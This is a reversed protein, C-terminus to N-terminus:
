PFAAHHNALQSGTQVDRAVGITMSKVCLPRLERAMM